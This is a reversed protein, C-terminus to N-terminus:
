CLSQTSRVLQWVLLRRWQMRSEATAEAIDSPHDTTQLSVTFEKTETNPAPLVTNRSFVSDMLIVRVDNTQSTIAVAGGFSTAVNDVFTCRKFIAYLVAADIAVAPGARAANRRFVTDEFTASTDSELHVGGIGFTSCGEITTKSVKLPVPGATAKANVWIAPGGAEKIGFVATGLPVM